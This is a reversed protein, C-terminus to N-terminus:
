QAKLHARDRRQLLCVREDEGGQKGEQIQRNSM